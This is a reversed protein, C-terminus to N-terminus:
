PKQILYLIYAIVATALSYILVTSSSILAGSIAFSSYAFLIAGFIAALVYFVTLALNSRKIRTACNLVTALTIAKGSYCAPASVNKEPLVANRYMHCGAASMVKVSDSYLGLYDCIMEETLNPDSNNVLLTVGLSTLRRLEHSIDPDVNYQVMLLACAKDQTAVYVPFYGSRLIKRDIEISPVSIGHAEMLTRNGIFLLRNDVWGSIGMRDEYKVTDSDPLTTINGTGAIKKFIPSLPSNLCETLSAARIITDDLTNESLVKMQHLTVTGEPFLDQSSLVIANAMEIHEAGAKGAIMARRRNLRKAAGYLPLNDILFLVPLAAFCQIAAATYLGDIAGDYYASCAFGIVLSLLVSFISIFNVKGKLFTGFTSYKIYNDTHECRKPAAILTDGEIANKAMAFTVATDSILSVAYKSSSSATQRLNSLLYSYKFFVGFSRFSLIVSLLLLMELVIENQTIGYVAYGTVAISALSATIDADANRTFLKAFGKFMGANLLIIIGTVCTCIIMSLSTHSLIVSTMFPLEMFALGLTLIISFFTAM